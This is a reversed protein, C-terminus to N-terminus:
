LLMILLIKLPWIPAAKFLILWIALASATLKEDDFDIFGVGFFKKCALM